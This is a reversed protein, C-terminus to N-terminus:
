SQTHNTGDEVNHGNGDITVAVDAVAELILPDEAKAVSVDVQDNGPDHSDQSDQRVHVNAGNFIIRAGVGTDEVIRVVGNNSHGNDADM